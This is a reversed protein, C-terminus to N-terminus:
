RITTPKFFDECFHDSDSKLKIKEDEEAEWFQKLQEQLALDHSSHVVIRFSQLETSPEPGMLYWGFHSERAEFNNGFNMRVGGLNIFPLYDTGISMEIGAPKYFYSDALKLGELNEFCQIPIPRSPIFQAVSSM